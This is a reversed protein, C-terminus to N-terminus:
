QLSVGGARVPIESESKRKQIRDADELDDTVLLGICTQQMTVQKEPEAAVNEEETSACNLRSLWVSFLFLPAEAQPWSYFNQLLM